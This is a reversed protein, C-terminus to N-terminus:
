ESIKQIYISSGNAPCAGRSMGKAVYEEVLMMATENSLCPWSYHNREADAHAEKLETIGIKWLRNDGGTVHDIHQRTFKLIYERVQDFM